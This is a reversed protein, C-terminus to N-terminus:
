KRTMKFRTLVPYHDSNGAIPCECSYAQLDGRYMVHDIRFYLNHHYYTNSPGFACEKYADTLDDGLVTRYSYTAPGDNFDGCLIVDRPCSDLFKRVMRAEKARRKAAYQVKHVLSKGSKSDEQDIGISQLHVDIFRVVRGKISVDFAKCYTHYSDNGDVVGHDQRLSDTPVVTYPYKSMIMLDQFGHSHFPYQRSVEDRYPVVGRQKLIDDKDFLGEQLLVVDADIDLLHRMTIFDRTGDMPEFGIVNWTLVTLTTDGEEPTHRTLSMPVHVLITPMSILIALALGMAYKFRKLLVLCILVLLAIVLMIPFGLTAVATWGMTRPDIHGAYACVLMAASTLLTIILSPIGRNHRM